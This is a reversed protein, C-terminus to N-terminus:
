SHVHDNKLHLFKFLFQLFTTIFTIEMKGNEKWLLLFWVVRESSSAITEIRSQMIHAVGVLCDSFLLLFGQRLFHCYRSIWIIEVNKYIIILRIFSLCSSMLQCFPLFSLFYVVSISLLVFLLPFLCTYFGHYNITM